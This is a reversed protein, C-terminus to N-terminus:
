TSMVSTLMQLLKKVKNRKRMTKILDQHFFNAYQPNEKRLTKAAKKDKISKDKIVDNKTFYKMYDLWNKAYVLQIKQNETNIKRLIKMLPEFPESASDNFPKKALIGHKTNYVIFQESIRGEKKSVELYEDPTMVKCKKPFKPLIRSMLGFIMKFRESNLEDEIFILQNGLYYGYILSRIDKEKIHKKVNDFSFDFTDLNQVVEDIQQRKSDVGESYDLALYDRVAFNKDLYAYFEHNCVVGAPIYIATAGSESGKVKAAPIPVFKKNGCVPCIIRVKKTSM